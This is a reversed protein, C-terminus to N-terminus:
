HFRNRYERVFSIKRAYSSRAVVKDLAKCILEATVKGDRVKQIDPRVLFETMLWDLNAVLSKLVEENPSPDSIEEITLGTIASLEKLKLPNYFEVPSRDRKASNCQQCLATATEDLQWLLALPRTHDLHMLNPTALPDDCSFCRKNFRTWIDDTLERGTKHRYALQPSMKYLEAILLEFHRRRQGDEKMQASTRQPNLAGNVAFKKCIRCELQYGFHVTQLGGTDQNRFRSFGAHRCPANAICHNSFSLTAREDDLNIPLYRACRNCTKLPISAANEAKTADGSISREVTGPNEYFNGEPAFLHLNNMIAPRAADFYEHWAIGCGLEFLDLTSDELANIIVEVPDQGQDSRWMSGVKSWNPYDYFSRVGQRINPNNIEVTANGLVRFYFGFASFHNEIDVPFTFRLILSSGSRLKLSEATGLRFESGTSDPHSTFGSSRTTTRRRGSYETKGPLKAM